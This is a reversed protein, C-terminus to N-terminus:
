RGLVIGVRSRCLGVRLVRGFYLGWGGLGQARHRPAWVKFCSELRLVLVGVGRRKVVKKSKGVRISGEPGGGPWHNM